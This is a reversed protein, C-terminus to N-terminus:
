HLWVEVRGMHNTTHMPIVNDKVKVKVMAFPTTSAKIVEEM